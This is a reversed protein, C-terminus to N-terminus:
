LLWCKATCLSILKVLEGITTLNINCTDKTDLGKIETEQVNMHDRPSSFTVGMGIVDLFGIEKSKPKRTIATIRQNSCVDYQVLYLNITSKKLSHEYAYM